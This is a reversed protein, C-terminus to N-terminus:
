LPKKIKCVYHRPYKGANIMLPDIRYALPLLFRRILTVFPMRLRHVIGILPYQAALDVASVFDSNTPKIYAIEGGVSEVVHKIAYESFRFYDHPRQHIGRFFSFLVYAHGGPRVVRLMDRITEKPETVHEMIIKTTLLVDFEGDAYPLTYSNELTIGDAIYRDEWFDIAEYRQAGDFLPQYIGERVGSQDHTSCINLVAGEQAEAAAEEVMDLISRTAPHRLLFAGGNEKVTRLFDEHTRKTANSM